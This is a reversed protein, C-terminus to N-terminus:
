YYSPLLFNMVEFNQFIECLVFFTAPRSQKNGLFVSESECVFFLVCIGCMDQHKKQSLCFFLWAYAFVCVCLCEQQLLNNMFIKTHADLPIALNKFMCLFFLTDTYSIIVFCIISLHIARLM